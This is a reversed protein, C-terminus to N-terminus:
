SSPHLSGSRLRASSCRGPSAAAAARDPPGALLALWQQLDRHTFPRGAGIVAQGRRTASLPHLTGLLRGEAEYWLLAARPQVDGVFAPPELPAVIPM